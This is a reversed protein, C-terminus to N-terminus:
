QVSIQGTSYITISKALGGPSVLSIRAGKLGAFSMMEGAMNFFVLHADTEPRVFTVDVRGPTCDDTGSQPIECITSFTYGSPLNLKEVCESFGGTQCNWDGEYIYKQTGAARDGFSIYATKESPNMISFSLGYGASFENTGPQFERVSVGYVQAQRLDLAINSTSNSLITGESYKAQGSVVISTIVSMILVTIIVEPLTFGAERKPKNSSRRYTSFIQM